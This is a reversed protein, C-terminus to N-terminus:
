FASSTSFINTAQVVDPSLVVKVYYYSFGDIELNYGLIM